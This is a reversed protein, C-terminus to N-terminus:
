RASPARAAAGGGASVSAVPRHVFSSSSRMKRPLGWGKAQSPPRFAFAAVIVVVRMASSLAGTPIASSGSAFFSCRAVAVM